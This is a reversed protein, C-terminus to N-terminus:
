APRKRRLARLSAAFGKSRLVPEVAADSIQRVRAAILIFFDQVQRSYHPLVEILRLLGYALGANIVLFILGIFMSPSILWIVAISALRGVADSGRVGAVIVGAGAALMLLVGLALPLTIQWFVEQRHKRQTVPNPSPLSPPKYHETM